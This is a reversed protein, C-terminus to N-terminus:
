LSGTTSRSAVAVDDMVAHIVTTAMSWVVVFFLELSLALALAATAEAV